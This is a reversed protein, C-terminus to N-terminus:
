LTQSLEEDKMNLFYLNFHFSLVNKLIHNNLYEYLVKQFWDWFSFVFKQEDCFVVEGLFRIKIIVQEVQEVEPIYFQMM